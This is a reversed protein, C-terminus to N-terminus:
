IHIMILCLNNKVFSLAKHISFTM